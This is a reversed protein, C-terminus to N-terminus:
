TKSSPWTRPRRAWPSTSTPCAEPAAADLARGVAPTRALTREEAAAFATNHPGVDSAGHGYRSVTEVGAAVFVDGEGARIAHAAMRITQLSSSCYRNVTVGPVNDLGALIAAVRAINYGAEGPRSAAGSSCTKSTARASNRSSKLSGDQHGIREPRRSPMRVLSGKVARGIPTRGTAVIVAEPM